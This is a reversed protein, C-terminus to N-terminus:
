SQWGKRHLADRLNAARDNHEAALEGVDWWAYLADLAIRNEAPLWWVVLLKELEVPHARYAIFVAGDLGRWIRDGPELEHVKM